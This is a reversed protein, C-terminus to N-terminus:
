SHELCNNWARANSILHYILLSARLTSNAITTEFGVLALPIVSKNFFKWLIYVRLEGVKGQLLLRFIVICMGYNYLMTYHRM